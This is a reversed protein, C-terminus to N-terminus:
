STSSLVHGCDKYRIEQVEHYKMIQATMTRYILEWQSAVFPIILLMVATYALPDKLFNFLKKGIVEHQSMRDAGDTIQHIAAYVEYFWLKNLIIYTIWSMIPLYVTCVMMYKTFPAVKYAGTDPITSNIDDKDPTFNDVYIRVGIIGMMIWHTLVTMVALLTTQHVPTYCENWDLDEMKDELKIFTIYVVRVVVSIAYLKMYLADM